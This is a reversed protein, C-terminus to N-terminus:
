TRNDYQKTDIYLKDMLNYFQTVTNTLEQLCVTLDENRQINNIKLVSKMRLFADEDLFGLLSEKSILYLSAEIALMDCLGLGSFEGLIMEIIQLAEGAEKM